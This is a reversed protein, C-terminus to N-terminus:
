APSRSPTASRPMAMVALVMREPSYASYNATTTPSQHGAFEQAVRIDQCARYVTTVARHRLSHMTDPIGHDHLWRNCLWSVRDATPPGAHGDRRRFVYGRSPLGYARLALTVAPHLPVVRDKSGKGTVVLVPPDATDLVSDRGLTAIECCRLGSFAGLMLWAYVDAPPGDLAVGLREEPIPRPLGRPVKPRPIKASPIDPILGADHAWVYLGHTRSLESFRTRPALPELARAWGMLDDHTADLLTVPSLHGALRWLHDHHVRITSRALNRLDMHDLRARIVAANDMRSQNSM